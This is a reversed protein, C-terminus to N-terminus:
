TITTAAIEKIVYMTAPKVCLAHIERGTPTTSKSTVSNAILFIFLSFAERYGSPGSLKRLIKSQRLLCFLIHYFLITRPFLHSDQVLGDGHPMNSQVPRVSLWM